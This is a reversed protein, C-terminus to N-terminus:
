AGRDGGSSEAQKRHQQALRAAPTVNAVAAQLTNEWGSVVDGEGGMMADFGVRAVHAPDDKDGQGVKTGMLDFGEAACRKALEYGIRTSAGTVM